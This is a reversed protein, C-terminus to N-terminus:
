ANSSTTTSCRAYHHAEMQGQMDGDYFHFGDLYANIARIPAQTQLAAAGAELLATRPSKENGPPTVPSPTEGGSCGGVVWVLCPLVLGPRINM